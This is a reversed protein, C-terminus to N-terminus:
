LFTVEGLTCSVFFKVLDDPPEAQGKSLIDASLTEPLELVKRQIEKVLGRLYFAAEVISHHDYTACKIATAESLQQM